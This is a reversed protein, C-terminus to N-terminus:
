QIKPSGVARPLLCTPPPHISAPPPMPPTGEHVCICAHVHLHMYLFQLHGSVHLWGHKYHKVHMHTNAHMQACAHAHMCAHSVRGYVWIWGWGWGGVQWEGSPVGLILLFEIVSSSILINLNQKYIQFRHLFEGGM